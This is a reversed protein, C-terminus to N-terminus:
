PIVVVPGSGNAAGAADPVDVGGGPPIAVPVSGSGATPVNPTVTLVLGPAIREELEEVNLNITRKEDM